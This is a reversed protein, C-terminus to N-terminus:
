DAQSSPGEHPLLVMKGANGRIELLEHAASAQELPFRAGIRPHIQGAALLAVLAQIDDHIQARQRKIKQDLAYLTFRPRNWIKSLLILMALGTVVSRDSKQGARVAGSIGFAVLIGTKAVLRRSRWLHAGGLSDFVADFGQPQAARLQALPSEREDFLHDAQNRFQDHWKQSMVATVKLGIHRALDLIASGV